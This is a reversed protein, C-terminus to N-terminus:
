NTLITTISDALAGSSGPPFAALASHHMTTLRDPDGLSTVLQAIGKEDRSILEVCGTDVLSQNKFTYQGRCLSFTPLGQAVAESIMVGEGGVFVNASSLFQWPAPTSHSHVVRPGREPKLAPAQHSLVRIESVGAVSSLNHILKDLDFPDDGGSLCVGITLEGFDLPFAELGEATVFGFAPDVVLTSTEPLADRLETSASRVLAHTALDARDCVPSILIRQPFQAVRRALTGPVTVADMIAADAQEGQEDVEIDLGLARAQQFGLADADLCFRTQIGARSLGRALAASRYLHGLGVSAGAQVFATVTNAM